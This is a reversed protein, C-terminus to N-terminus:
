KNVLNYKNMNEDKFLVNPVWDKYDRMKLNNELMFDAPMPITNDRTHNHDIYGRLFYYLPRTDIFM